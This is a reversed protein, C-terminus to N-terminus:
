ARWSHLFALERRRLEYGDPILGQPEWRDVYDHVIHQVYEAPPMYRLGYEDLLARSRANDLESMWRSSFPSCRPLLGEQELLGRPLEAVEVERGLAGALLLLFGRLDLSEGYSINLAEGIARHGGALAVVLRAVDAVYVHRLGHGPELPVLLPGGDRLRALYAQIRGAPDRESAVMPLRLTTVPFRQEERAGAFVAEADRKGAGYRWGDHDVTGSPPEPLLPGDYDSERFPRSVGARVLYVQGTSIFVYHGVRRAFVEVAQQADRLDYTTTDLVLDFERSGVATRLADDASRDARIREVRGPLEDRTIGRNLIAVDHGGKLLELAAFYGIDRTGGLILARGL